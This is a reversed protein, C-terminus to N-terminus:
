RLAASPPRPASASTLPYAYAHTTHINHTHYTHTTFTLAHRGVSPDIRQSHMWSLYVYYVCWMLFAVAERRQYAVGILGPLPSPKPPGTGAHYM